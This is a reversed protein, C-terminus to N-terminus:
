GLKVGVRFAKLGTVGQLEELEVHEVEETLVGKEQLYNVYELYEEAEKESFYIVAIKGPQTLREMGGKIHVKDIRKKVIQYRINYGGEVDFRREDKRFSIDIPNSHVFILQTTLLKGPMEPLLAHTLGAVAAMSSLQWLRLNKLYIHDFPKDPAISQGIYIDYEVGDTRFKEFYSPYTQQLEEAAAELHLNITKNILQISRELERRNAFAAGKAEDIAHLYPEIVATLDPRTERVHAFFDDVDKELFLNLDMEDATTLESLLSEQWKRCRFILEELLEMGMEQQLHTLSYLLVSFQVGLDKRLAMNREITSNRIDIAGYLPYINEFYITELSLATDGHQKLHQWAVENFKWEVAPQISTFNEKIVAKIRDDFEDITRRLLQSLLPIVIDLRSLLALDLVGEEKSYVELVGALLHNHFVPLLAYSKVGAQQLISIFFRKEEGVGELNEFFVLKPHKFYLEAMSLVAGETEGCQKGATALISHFCVDDLFVPRGNLKLMPLLGFDVSPKGMLNRLASIVAEYSEGEGCDAQNLIISRIHDLVYRETIDTVTIVTFGEFHFLSLPLREKLVEIGGSEQLRSQLFQLDLKPLDGKLCISVFRTDVNLKFFRLLGTVPDKMAHLFSGDEPYFTYNYLKKLLFSYIFELNIRRRVKNESDFLEAKFMGTEPSRFSDYFPDTGYFLVPKMPISLAWLSKREDEIAPYISAFVLELLDGYEQMDEPKLSKKGALRQEFQTIIFDLFKVRLTKEYLRRDRLFDIFPRFSLSADILDAGEMGEAINLVSNQM